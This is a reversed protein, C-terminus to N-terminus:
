PLSAIKRYGLVSSDAKTAPDDPICKDTNKAAQNDPYDHYCADSRLNLSSIGKSGLNDSSAIIQANFAPVAGDLRDCDQIATNATAQIPPLNTTTTIGALEGQFSNTGTSTKEEPSSQSKDDPSVFAEHTAMADFSFKGM